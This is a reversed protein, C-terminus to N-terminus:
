PVSAVENVVKIEGFLNATPNFRSVLQGTVIDNGDQEGIKDFKRWKGVLDIRLLKTTFTGATTLASGPFDMRLLRATEARWAVKEAISIADHEFTVDLIVEPKTNKIFTFFTGLGDGTWVPRWGTTVKLSMKLFTNSKQTTGMTGTVPDIYLKGKSFLISEVSPLTLPDTFTAPIIQRGTWDSTMLLSEGGAGELAFSPVFCYEMKEAGADDGGEITYTKITNQATTPFPYSYVKGSGGTDTVGTGVTKIGAELMHLIQEYTADISELTIAGALKPTATRDAGGLYGIDEEVYKIERLDELTGLGRWRATAVVSTGASAERGLQVRRLAKIGAM